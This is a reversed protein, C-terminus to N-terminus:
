IENSTSKIQRTLKVILRHQSAQIEKVYEVCRKPDGVFESGGATLSVLAKEWECVSGPKPSISKASTSSDDDTADSGQVTPATNLLEKKFEKQDNILFQELCADWGHKFAMIRAQSTGHYPAGEKEALQDRLQTTLEM